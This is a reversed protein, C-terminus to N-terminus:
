LLKETKRSMDLPFTLVLQFTYGRGLWGVKVDLISKLSRPPLKVFVAQPQKMLFTAYVFRIRSSTINSSPPTAKNTVYEGQVLEKVLFFICMQSDGSYM